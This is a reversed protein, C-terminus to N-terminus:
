GFRKVIESFGIVDDITQLVLGLLFSLGECCLYNLRCLWVVFGGEKETLLRADRLLQM